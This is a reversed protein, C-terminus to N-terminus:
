QEPNVGENALMRMKQTHCDRADKVMFHEGSHNFGLRAYFHKLKNKLKNTREETKEDVIPVAKLAVLANNMDMIASMRKLMEKGIGKGRYNKNVIIEEIYIIANCITEEKESPSFAEVYCNNDSLIHSGLDSVDSSISDFLDQLNKFSKRALAIDIRLGNIRAVVIDEAEEEDWLVAQGDFNLLIHTVDMNNSQKISFEFELESLLDQTM